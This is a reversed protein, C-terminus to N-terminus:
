RILNFISYLDLSGLSYNINKSVWSGWIYRPLTGVSTNNNQNSFKHNPIANSYFMFDNNKLRLGRTNKVVPQGYTATQTGFAYIYTKNGDPLAWRIEPKIVFNLSSDTLAYGHASSADGTFYWHYLSGSIGVVAGGHNSVGAPYPSLAKTSGLAGITSLNSDYFQYIITAKGSLFCGVLVSNTDPNNTIFTDKIHTNGSYVLTPYVSWDGTTSTKGVYLSLNDNNYSTASVYTICYNNGGLYQSKSVPLYPEKANLMMYLSATTTAIGTFTANAGGNLSADVSFFGIGNWKRYFEGDNFSNDLGLSVLLSGNQYVLDSVFGGFITPITQYSNSIGNIFWFWKSSSSSVMQISAFTRYELVRNPNAVFPLKNTWVIGQNSLNYDKAGIFVIAGAGTAETQATMLGCYFLTNPHEIYPQLKSPTTGVAFTCYRFKNVTHIQKNEHEVKFLSVNTLNINSATITNSQIHTANVTNARLHDTTIADAQIMHGRIFNGQLYDATFSKNDRYDTPSDGEWEELQVADFYVSGVGTPALVVTFYAANPNTIVITGYTRGWSPYVSLNSNIFSKTEVINREDDYQIVSIASSYGNTASSLYASYVYQRSNSDLPLISIDHQYARQAPDDMAIYNRGIYGGNTRITYINDNSKTFEGSWSWKVWNEATLTGASNTYIREFSSNDLINGYKDRIDQQPRLTRYPAIRSRNGVNDDAFLKYTYPEWTLLDTHYYEATDRNLEAVTAFGYPKLSVIEDFLIFEGVVGSNSNIYIETNVNTAVAFNNTVELYSWNSSGTISRRVSAIINAPNNASIYRLNITASNTISGKCWLYSTLSGSIGFSESRLRPNVDIDRERIRLCRKGDLLDARNIITAWVSGNVPNVLSWHSPAEGVADTEFYSNNLLSARRKAKITFSKVGSRPYGRDYGTNFYGDYIYDGNFTLFNRNVESKTSDKWFRDPNEITPATTDVWINYTKRETEKGYIDKCWFDFRYKYNNTEVNFTGASSAVASYAGLEFVYAYLYFTAVISFTPSRLSAIINTQNYWNGYDATIYDGSTNKFVVDYKLTQDGTALPKISASAYSSENLFADLATIYRSVTAVTNTFESYYVTKGTASTRYEWVLNSLSVDSYARIYKLDNATPNTWQHVIGGNAPDPSYSTPIKPATTDGSYISAFTSRNSRNRFASNDYSDLYYTYTTNNDIDFDDWTVVRGDSSNRPRDKIFEFKEFFITPESSLSQTITKNVRVINYPTSFNSFSNLSTAVSFYMNHIYRQAILETRNVSAMYSLKAYSATSPLKFDGLTPNFGAYSGFSFRFDQLGPGISDIYFDKYPTACAAKASTYFNVRFKDVFTTGYAYEEHVSINSLDITASPGVQTTALFKVRLSQGTYTIGSNHLKYTNLVYGQGAILTPSTGLSTDGISEIHQIKFLAQKPASAYVSVVITCAASYIIGDTMTLTAMGSPVARLVPLSNNLTVTLSKFNNSAYDWGSPASNYGNNDWAHQYYRNNHLRGGFSYLSGTNVPIFTSTAYFLTPAGVVAGVLRLYKTNFVPNSDHFVNFGSDLTWNNISANFIPNPVKNIRTKYINTVQYTGSSSGLKVTDGNNLTTNAGYFGFWRNKETGGYEFNFLTPVFNSNAVFGTDQESKRYIGNGAFDISSDKYWYLTVKSQNENITTRSITPSAWQPVDPSTIDIYRWQSINSYNAGFKLFAGKSYSYGTFIVTIWAGAPLSVNFVYKGDQYNNFVNTYNGGAPKIFANLFLRSQNLQFQISTNSISYLQVGVLINDKNNLNSIDVERGKLVRWAISGSYNVFEDATIGTSIVNDRELNYSGQTWEVIIDQTVGTNPKGDKPSVATSKIKDLRTNVKDRTQEDIQEKFLDLLDKKM